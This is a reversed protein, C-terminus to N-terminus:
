PSIASPSHSPQFRSPQFRSPQFPDAPISRFPITQFSLALIPPCAHSATLSGAALTARNRRSCDMPLNVRLGDPTIHATGVSLRDKEEQDHRQNVKNEGEAIKKQLFPLGREEEEEEEGEAADMGGDPGEEKTKPFRADEVSPDTRAPLVRM